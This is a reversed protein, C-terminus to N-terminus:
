ENQLLDELFEEAGSYKSFPIVIIINSSATDIYVILGKLWKCIEENIKMSKM